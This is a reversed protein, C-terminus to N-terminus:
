INLRQPSHAEILACLVEQKPSLPAPSTKHTSDRKLAPDTQRKTADHNAAKSQTTSLYQKVQQRQAQQIHYRTPNELGTQVQPSFSFLLDLETKSM